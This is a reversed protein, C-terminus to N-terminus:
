LFFTGFVVGIGFVILTAWFKYSIIFKLNTLVAKWTRGGEPKYTM